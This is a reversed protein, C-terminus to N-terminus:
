VYHRNPFKVLKSMDLIDNYLELEVLKPAGSYSSQELEGKTAALDHPNLCVYFNLAFGIVSYDYNRWTESSTPSSTPRRNWPEFFDVIRRTNECM